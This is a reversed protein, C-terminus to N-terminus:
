KSEKQLVNGRSEQHEMSINPNVWEGLVYTKRVPLRYTIIPTM